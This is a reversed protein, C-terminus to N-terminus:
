YDKSFGKFILAFIAGSIFGGIHAFHATGSPYYMSLFGYILETIFYIIIFYKASIRTAVRSLLILRNNPFLIGYVAIVGFIAGSAGIAPIDLLIPDILAILGHLLSACIGSVLYTVLFLIHGMAHECNDAVVFFFWLNMLIHVFNAHMFMSTFLTWIKKGAFFEGPIFGAEYIFMYGTPDFYQIIHVIVNIVIIATSVYQKLFPIRDNKIEYVM